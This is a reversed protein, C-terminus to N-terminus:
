AIRFKAFVFEVDGLLSGEVGDGASVVLDALDRLPFGSFKRVARIIGVSAVGLIGGDSSYRLLVQDIPM